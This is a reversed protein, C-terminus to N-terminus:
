YSLCICLRACFDTWACSCISLRLCSEACVCCCNVLVCFRTASLLWCILVSLLWKSERFFSTSSLRLSALAPVADAMAIAECGCTFVPSTIIDNLATPSITNGCFYIKPGDSTENHYLGKVAEVVARAGLYSGGIGAVLLVDSDSRIKQAAEKIRAFEEKDYTVPLDLWGLFDNGFGTKTELQKHALEVQPYIAEYEEPRIFKALHKGNFAVAM